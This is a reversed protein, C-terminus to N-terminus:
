GNNKNMRQFYVAPILLIMLTPNVILRHFQSLLPTSIESTGEWSLKAWLYLPLLLFLDIAQIALALRTTTRDNFWAVILILMFVDNCLVRITRNVAFAVTPSEIGFWHTAISYEQFLFVLALGLMATIMALGRGPTFSRLEPGPM